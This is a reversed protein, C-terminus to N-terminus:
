SRASSSPSELWALVLLHGPAGLRVARLTGEIGAAAHHLRPRPAHRAPLPENATAATSGPEPAPSVAAVTQAVRQTAQRALVQKQAVLLKQLQAPNIFGKEVLIEGLRQRGGSRGQSETAQNLQDTSILKTHVAIRGLLADNSEAM